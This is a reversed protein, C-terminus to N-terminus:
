HKSGLLFYLVCRTIMSISLYCHQSVYKDTYIVCLMAKNLYLLQMPPNKTTANIHKAM